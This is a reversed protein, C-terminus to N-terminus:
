VRDSRTLDVSANGELVARCEHAVQLDERAHVVITRVVAGPGSIDVDLQGVTANAGQDIDVGLWSLQSCTEARIASAHEGVGGTFVLADAGQTAAFMAAIKARLRHVYVGIAMSAGHDGRSRGALVQRMDGDYQVALGKLGSRHTLAEGAEAVTLGHQLAWLLAGPDLDGSRTAMVLGETPTFGMTTDLSRGGAVATVSAGSGLHCIVTRLGDGPRNLLTATRRVAWACSLGHFGYRRIGWRAVWESPIAYGSAEAPLGAHFATDFCGVSPRDPLIARVADLADLAPPNQLPALDRLAELEARTEDDVVLSRTYRPGGHVVRHGAADITGAHPRVFDALQDALGPDPPGLDSAAVVRDGDDIVRLKVSSSGANVVLIRM